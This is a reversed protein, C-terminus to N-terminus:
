ETKMKVNDTLGRYSTQHIPQESPGLHNGFKISHVKDPQMIYIQSSPIIMKLTQLAHPCLFVQKLWVNLLNFFNIVLHTLSKRGVDLLMILFFKDRQHVVLFYHNSVIESCLRKRSSPYGHQVLRTNFELLECHIGSSIKAPGCCVYACYRQSCLGFLQLM